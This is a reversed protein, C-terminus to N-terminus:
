PVSSDYPLVETPIPRNFDEFPIQRLSSPLERIRSPHGFDLRRISSPLERIRSPMTYYEGFQLQQLSRPLETTRIPYVSM